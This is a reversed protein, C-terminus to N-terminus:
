RLSRYKELLLKQRTMDPMQRGKIFVHEAATSLEFPDGSWVVIDAEKGVELTGYRDAIGWIQAPVATVARLAADQPMGYAIANGARQKLNRANHSEFTAFAVLAGADHLRAANELTISSNEMGPLNQLPDIVVPVKAAALDSAVVWGETAGTLVLRLQPFPERLRLVALIDSARHVNIALIVEGQVVPVLAEMDLRGLAYERRRNEQWAARNAAFDRADALAEKLLLIAAERSGGALGAGAQGLTVYMASPSRALMDNVREGGLDIVAGRGAIISSGTAPAVVARTIGEVRNVPLLTSAPDIADVVDYAATLRTSTTSADSPGASLPIEVLGLNTHSDILGPTVVKGAGDIVRAGAPATVNAGVATIRGDRFVITGREITPGAATHIRANTIAITQAGVPLSSVAMAAVAIVCRM